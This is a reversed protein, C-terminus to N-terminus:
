LFILVEAYITWGLISKAVVSLVVFSAETEVGTMAADYTPNEDLFCENYRPIWNDMKIFNIDFQKSFQIRQVYGFCNFLVFQSILVGWVWAPLESGNPNNCVAQGVSMDFVVIWLICWVVSIPIYAIYHLSLAVGRLTKGLDNETIPRTSLFRIYDSVLGIIMCLSTLTFITLHLYSDLLGFSIFIAVAMCSASISYEIYRFWQPKNSLIDNMYNKSNLFMFQFVASTLFFIVLLAAITYHRDLGHSADLENTISGFAIDRLFSESDQQLGNWCSAMRGIHAKGLATGGHRVKNLVGVLMSVSSAMHVLTTIQSLGRVRHYRSQNLVEGVSVARATKVQESVNGSVFSSVDFLGDLVAM